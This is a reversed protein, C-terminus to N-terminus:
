KMVKIDFPIRLQRMRVARYVENAVKGPVFAQLMLTGISISEIDTSKRFQVFIKKSQDFFVDMENACDKFLNKICKTYLEKPQDQDLGSLYVSTFPDCNNLARVADKELTPQGQRYFYNPYFAGAIIVKLMIMRENDLVQHSSFADKKTLNHRSLRGKVEEILSNWEKLVNKQLFLRRAWSFDTPRNPNRRSTDVFKSYRYVNYFAILDSCSGDAWSLKWMYAKLRADFPVSFVSKISIATAIVIAEELLDFIYGLVILKTCHIDLPLDAM